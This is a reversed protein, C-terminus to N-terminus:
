RRLICLEREIGGKSEILERMEESGCNALASDFDDAGKEILTKVMELSEGEVATFLALNLGNRGRYRKVFELDDNMVAEIM